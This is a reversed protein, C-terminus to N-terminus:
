ILLLARDNVIFHGVLNDEPKLIIM